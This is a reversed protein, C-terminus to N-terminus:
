KKEAIAFGSELTSTDGKIEEGAAINKLIRRMIKGSRTKPLTETFHIQDPRALAGIQKSIHNKIDNELAPSQSVGSKLTIFCAIAEGKVSHPTGVVAAETIDLHNVLASEIEMTSLRHGSVNLVDDIRGMIWIYQDQDQRAGDGTFYVNEIEQWYQQKYREHDGFITRMISPWPQELILYGGQEAGVEKHDKTVIKPKVGFFPLGASGPKSAKVAPLNSIMISGTETQWWTDVIPCRGKGVESHYWKWAKPNIPEGVSGLLRLSSLDYKAPLDPGFKMFARIATPATYLKTIKYKEILQWFRGWNPESPAGEYMFISAGLCLPGYVGYTHGTIWGSDATCWFLDDDKMDFIYYSSVAAGLLYGASTHLIGKPKGTSGSTYLLFIPNEAGHGECMNLLEEESQPPEPTKEKAIFDHWYIDRDNTMTVEQQCRDFVIVKQVFDLDAVAADVVEKLALVQGKRYVGDSTIIWQSHADTIRSKLSEASFGAFVVNHMAGLRACALMSVFIEPVMPMYLTVVDGKKVGLNKLAASVRYVQQWLELYTLSRQDGPEGEWFIATKAAKDKLHRDVCNYALNLTGDAFWTVKDDEHRELTKTFPMHWSLFKQAQESWFENPHDVSQQWMKQYEEETAIHALKVFSPHPQYQETSLTKSDPNLSTIEKHATEQM